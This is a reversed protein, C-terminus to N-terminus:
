NWVGQRLRLHRDARSCSWRAISEYDPVDRGSVVVSAARLKASNTPYPDEVDVFFADIAPVDAHVPLVYGALNPSVVTGPRTHTMAQELLAMGIRVGFDPDVPVEAFQAGFADARHGNPTRAFDVSGDGTV